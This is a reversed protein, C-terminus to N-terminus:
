TYSNNTQTKSEKYLFFEACSRSIHCLILETLQQKIKSRSNMGHLITVDLIPTLPQILHYATEYRYWNLIFTICCWRQRAANCRYFYYYYYM